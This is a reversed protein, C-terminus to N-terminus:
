TERGATLPRQSKRPRRAREAATRSRGRDDRKEAASGPRNGPCRRLPTATATGPTRASADGAMVSAPVSRGSRVARRAAPRPALHRRATEGRRRARCGRAAGHHRGRRKSPTTSCGCGATPAASAAPARARSDTARMHRIPLDVGPCLLKRDIDARWVVRRDLEARMRRHAHPVHRRASRHPPRRM